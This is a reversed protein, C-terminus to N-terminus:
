GIDWVACKVVTKDKEFSYYTTLVNNVFKYSEVAVGNVDAAKETCGVHASSCIRQM